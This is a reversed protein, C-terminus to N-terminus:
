GSKIVDDYTVIVDVHMADPVETSRSNEYKTPPRCRRFNSACSFKEVGFVGLSLTLIPRSPYM